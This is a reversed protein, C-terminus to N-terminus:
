NRNEIQLNTKRPAQQEDGETIRKDDIQSLPFALRHHDMSARSIDIRHGAFDIALGVLEPRPEAVDGLELRPLECPELPPRLGLTPLPQSGVIEFARTAAGDLTLMDRRDHRPPQDATM